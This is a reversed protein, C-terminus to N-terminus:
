AMAGAGPTKTRGEHGGATESRTRSDACPSMLFRGTLAPRRRRKRRRSPTMVGCAGAESGQRQDCAVPKNGCM